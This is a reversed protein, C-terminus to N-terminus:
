EGPQLTGGMGAADGRDHGSEEKANLDIQAIRKVAPLRELEEALGAPLEQDTELVALADSSRGKRDLVMHGINVAGENLLRTVGALVGPRDDHYVLLAPYKCSFVVHFGDVESVEIDGGGISSGTMRSKREGRVLELKLTNPHGPRGAGARFDLKMGRAEALRLAGPIGPDDTQCGLLGAAVALDTGHGKYTDAFSGFFTVLATEPEGGLLKRGALGLRVAGATHSSSPGIMAPGIISFVDKFRMAAQEGGSPNCDHIDTTYLDM